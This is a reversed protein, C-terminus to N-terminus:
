NNGVKSFNTEKLFRCSISNLFVLFNRKAAERLLGTQFRIIYLFLFLLFNFLFIFSMKSSDFFFLFFFSFLFVPEIAARFLQANRSKRNSIYEVWRQTTANVKVAIRYCGGVMRDHFIFHFVEPREFM